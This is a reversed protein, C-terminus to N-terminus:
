ASLATRAREGFGRLPPKERRLMDPLDIDAATRNRGSAKALYLQRDARELLESLKSTAIASVVGISVTPRLSETEWAECFAVRLREAQEVAEERTMGPLVAAFEEGGYRCCLGRPGIEKKATGAFAALVRDGARHGHTDNIKKFHDLDMLLVAVPKQDRALKVFLEEARRFFEGRNFLGTMGDHTAAYMLLADSREKGLAILSFSSVVVLLTLVVTATEPGLAARFIPDDPGLLWLGLGRLAYFVANFTCIAALISANRTRAENERGRWFEAAAALSFAAFCAFFPYAGSWADLHRETALMALTMFFPVALAGSFYPRRRNVCRAGCWTMAVTVAAIGNGVPYLRVLHLDSGAGIYFLAAIPACLFAWAFSWSSRSRGRVAEILFLLGCVISVMQAMVMLTFLDLGM